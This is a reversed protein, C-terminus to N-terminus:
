WIKLELVSLEELAEKGFYTRSYPFPTHTFSTKKIFTHKSNEERKKGSKYKNM